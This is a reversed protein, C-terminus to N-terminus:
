YGSRQKAKAVSFEASKIFDMTARETARVKEVAAPLGDLVEYPVVVVGNADGHLVDGTGVRQGDILVPVGVEAVAWNAHSVVPFPAFYHFGLAHVEDLDRVGGDTVLGVAGLRTAYTSMVEGCYAVRHPLGSADQMVIVVPKPMAEIAEWMAWFGERGYVAGFRNTVTLTLAHGVMPPLDPFLCRVRGGIFGEARDRVKFPEIANAITPSDIGRLFALQAESLAPGDYLTMSM